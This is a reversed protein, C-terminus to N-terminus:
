IQTEYIEEVVVNTGLKNKGFQNSEEHRIVRYWNGLHEKKEGVPWNEPDQVLIKHFKLDSNIAMFSGQGGV